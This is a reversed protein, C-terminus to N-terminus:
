DSVREREAERKSKRDAFPIRPLSLSFFEKCATHAEAPASSTIRSLFGRGVPKGADPV